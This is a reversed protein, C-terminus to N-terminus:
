HCNRKHKIIRGSAGKYIFLIYLMASTWDVEAISIRSDIGIEIRKPDHDDDGSLCPHGTRWWPDIRDPFGTSVLIFQSWLIGGIRRMGRSHNSEQALTTFSTTSNDNLGGFEISTM